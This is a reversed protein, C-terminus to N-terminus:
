NSVTKKTKSYAKKTVRKTKYYGRKSGRKTKHAVYRTGRKSRYYVKRSKRKVYGIQSVAGFAAGSVPKAAFVATSFLLSISLVLTNLKKM